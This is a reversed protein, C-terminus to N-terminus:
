DLKLTMGRALEFDFPNEYFGGLVETDDYSEGIRIFYYEEEDLNKIFNDLFDIDPYYKPDGTYWKLYDWKWIEAGSEKDLGHENAYDFLIKVEEQLKPDSKNLEAKLLKCGENTLALGTESYYGM